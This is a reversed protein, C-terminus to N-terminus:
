IRRVVQDKTAGERKCELVGQAEGGRPGRHAPQVEKIDTSSDTGRRWLCEHLEATPVQPLPPINHHEPPLGGRQSSSQLGAAVVGDKPTATVMRVITPVNIHPEMDQM